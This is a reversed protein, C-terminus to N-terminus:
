ARSNVISESFFSVFNRLSTKVHDSTGKNKCQFLLIVSFEDGHGAETWMLPSMPLVSNEKRNLPPTYPELLLIHYGQGPNAATLQPCLPLEAGQSHPLSIRFLLFDQCLDAPKEEVSSFLPSFSSGASADTQTVTFSKSGRDWTLSRRMRSPINATQPTGSLLNRVIQELTSLSSLTHVTARPQM